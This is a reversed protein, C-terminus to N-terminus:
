MPFLGRDLYVLHGHSLMFLSQLFLVVDPCGSFLGLGERDDMHFYLATCVLMVDWILTLAAMIVFALRVWPTYVKYNKKLVLFEPLSLKSLPTPELDNNIDTSLRLHEENRLMDKIKEWGLYAKAEEIMFLSNWVLLFCHGSIDLGKWKFGHRICALKDQFRSTQCIGFADEILMFTGTVGYWVSTAVMLRLLQNKVVQINGCGYTVSTILNFLGTTIMTWGWSVKVFYLNMLNDNQTLYHSARTGFDSVVSLLLTGIIYLGVKHSIDIGYLVKRALHVVMMAMIHGVSAAEALPRSGTGPGGGFDQNPRFKMGLNGARFRAFGSKKKGGGM